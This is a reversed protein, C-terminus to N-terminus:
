FIGTKQHYFEMDMANLSTDFLLKIKERYGDKLAKGLFKESNESHYLFATDIYNVGNDIAYRVMDEAKAYDIEGTKSELPLRMAGFGLVSAEWDLHGM